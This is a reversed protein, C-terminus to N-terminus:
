ALGLEKATEEIEEMKIKHCGAILLDDTINNILWRFGSRDEVDGLMHEKINKYIRSAEEISLSIGKSTEVKDKYIRLYTYFTNTYVNKIEGKKWKKILEEANLNYLEEKQRLKEKHKEYRKMYKDYVGEGLMADVVEQTSHTGILINWLVRLKSVYEAKVKKSKFSLEHKMGLINDPSGKLINNPKGLEFFHIYDIMEKSVVEIFSDEVFYCKKYQQLHDLIHQLKMVIFWVGPNRSIGDSGVDFIYEGSPIAQLMCSQHVQTSSSYKDLNVLYAKQGKKNRVIRGVRFHYGYSYLSNGEFYFNSGKASERMENAWLHAVENNNM